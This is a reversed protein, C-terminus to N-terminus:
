YRQAIAQWQILNTRGGDLMAPPEEPSDQEQPVLPPTDNTPSEDEQNPSPETEEEPPPKTADRQPDAQLPPPSSDELKAPPPLVRKSPNRKKNKMTPSANEKQRKRLRAKRKEEKLLRDYTNVASIPMLYFSNVLGFLICGPISLGSLPPFIISLVNLGIWVGCQSVSHLGCALYADSLYGDPTEEEFWFTPLWVSGGMCGCIGGMFFPILNKDVRSDLDDNMTLPFFRDFFSLNQEYGTARPISDIDELLPSPRRERFTPAKNSEAKDEIEAPASASLLLTFYAGLVIM